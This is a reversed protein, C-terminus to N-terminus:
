AAWAELQATLAAPIDVSPNVIGGHTFAENASQEYQGDMLAARKTACSLVNLGFIWKDSHPGGWRIRSVDTGGGGNAKVWGFVSEAVNRHQLL